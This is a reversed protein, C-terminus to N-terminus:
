HTASKDIRSEDIGVILKVNQQDIDSPIENPKHSAHKSQHQGKPPCADQCFLLGTAVWAAQRRGSERTASWFSRHPVLFVLQTPSEFSFGYSKKAMPHMQQCKKIRMLGLYTNSGIPKTSRYYSISGLCQTASVNKSQQTPLYKKNHTQVLGNLLSIDVTM